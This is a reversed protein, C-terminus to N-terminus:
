KFSVVQSEEYTSKQTPVISNIIANLTEASSSETNRRGFMHWNVENFSIAQFSDVDDISSKRQITLCECERPGGIRKMWVYGHQISVFLVNHVLTYCALCRYDTFSAFVVSHLNESQISRIAAESLLAKNNQTEEEQKKEEKKKKEEKQSLDYDCVENDLFKFKICAPTGRTTICKRIKTAKSRQHTFIYSIASANTAENGMSEICKRCANSKSNEYNHYAVLCKSDHDPDIRTDSTYLSMGQQFTTFDLKSNYYKYCDEVPVKKVQRMEDIIDRNPDFVDRTYVLLLTTDAFDAGLEMWHVIINDSLHQLHHSYWNKYAQSQAFKRHQSHRMTVQYCIRSGSAAPLTDYATSTLLASFPSERAGHVAQCVEDPYIHQYQQTNSTGCVGTDRCANAIEDGSQSTYMVYVSLKSESITVFFDGLISNSKQMLCKRCDDENTDFQPLCVLRKPRKNHEANSIAPPNPDLPERENMVMYAISTASGTARYDKARQLGRLSAHITFDIAATQIATVELSDVGVENLLASQFVAYSKWMASEDIFDPSDLRYQRRHRQGHGVHLQYAALAFALISAVRQSQM